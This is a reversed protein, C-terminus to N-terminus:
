SFIVILFKGEVGIEGGDAFNIVATDFRGPVVTGYKDDRASEAHISDVVLDDLADLSALDHSM